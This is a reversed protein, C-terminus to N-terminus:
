WGLEYNHKILHIWTEDGRHRMRDPSISLRHAVAATLGDALGGRLLLIFAHLMRERLGPPNWLGVVICDWGGTAALYPQIRRVCLGFVADCLILGLRKQFSRVKWVKAQQSRSNYPRHLERSRGAFPWCGHLHHKPLLHRGQPPYNLFKRTSSPKPYLPRQDVLSLFGHLSLCAPAARPKECNSLTSNLHLAGPSTARLRGIHPIDGVKGACPFCVKRLPESCCM